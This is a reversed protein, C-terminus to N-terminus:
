RESKSKHQRSSSSEIFASTREELLTSLKKSGSANMHVPDLFDTEDFANSKEYDWFPIKLKFTTEIEMKTERLAQRWSDPTNSSYSATYPLQVFVIKVDHELLRLIMQRLANRNRELNTKSFREKLFSIRKKAFRKGTRRVVQRQESSSRSRRELFFLVSSPTLRYQPALASSISTLVRDGIGKHESEFDARNLGWAYFLRFGVNSAAIMLPVPDLEIVALKLNPMSDLHKRLIKELIFYDFGAGAIYMSEVSFLDPRIGGVIHSSGIFIVQTKDSLAERAAALHAFPSYRHELEKALFHGLSFLLVFFVVFGGHRRKEASDLSQYKKVYESSFISSNM